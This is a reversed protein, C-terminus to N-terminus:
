PKGEGQNGKAAFRRHDPPFGGPQSATLAEYGALTLQYGRGYREPIVTFGDGDCLALGDEAILHGSEVLGDAIGRQTHHLSAFDHVENSCDTVSYVLELIRLQNPKM